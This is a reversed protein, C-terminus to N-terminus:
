ATKSKRCSKEFVADLKHAAKRVQAEQLHTYISATTKYDSHGALRMAVLPDIGAEYLMTIYNHRLYHPTITPKWDYRLDPRADEAREVPEALGAHVMLSIWMRLASSYSLPGGNGAPFLLVAPLERRTWLLERLQSPISVIRDACDTKLTGMVGRNNESFDVDRQM